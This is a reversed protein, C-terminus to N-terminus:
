SQHRLPEKTVCSNTILVLHDSRPWPSQGHNWEQYVRWNQGLPTWHSPISCTYTEPHNTHHRSEHSSSNTDRPQRITKGVGQFLNQYRYIIKELMPHENGIKVTKNPEKLGGTEDIKPMGLEDLSPRGLLPLYDIKGQVVVLIAKSEITVTCKGM